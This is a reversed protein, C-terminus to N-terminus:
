ETQQHSSGGRSPGPAEGRGEEGPAADRDGTLPLEYTYALPPEPFSRRASAADAGPPADAPGLQGLRSSLISAFFLASPGLRPPRDAQALDERERFGSSYHFSVQLRKGFDIRGSQHGNVM